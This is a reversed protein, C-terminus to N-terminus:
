LENVWVRMEGDGRNNWAFYPTFTLEVDEYEDKTNYRYLPEDDAQSIKRKGMAKVELLGDILDNNKDSVLVADEPLFVNFLQDGNDVEELCYVLPGRGIAVKKALHGVNSNGKIRFPEFPINLCVMDGDEWNRKILVYGDVVVNKVPEGNVYIKCDNRWDPMRLALTFEANKPASIEFDVHGNWTFNSKQNICVDVGGVTIVSKTQIYLNVYLTDGVATYVYDELSALLRAINPPCCACGFWSQRTPLVHDLTRNKGSLTPNVELPNVYFFKKGDRAMGALVTNYLARELENAYKANPKMEQMRRAYFMLAISACTEAYVTDNPLDYDVSFDEGHVQSGIAGTIYMQKNTMNDWLVECASFLAEDNTLKALHAMGTTMYAFRVAHGTAVKQDYISEHAQSYHPEDVIRRNWHFTEGRKKVEREYFHGDHTNGREELFFRSLELYKEDKTVEFLKTLALEIEQHGDYGRIQGEGTGFTEYIYDAYKIMVDLFKKKRTAEFYAIAAEILHGACYLEHCEALNSWRADPEKLTYYTNLYGDAHQAEALLDIVEDALAELKDDKDKKLLYGVAELWKAVDSDQFVMGYFEGELRGAAIKINKIARSEQANPINDNLADWQYPLVVNKVLDVYYDWFGDQIKVSNIVLNKVKDM